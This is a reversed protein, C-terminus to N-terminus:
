SIIFFCYFYIYFFYIIYWTTWCIVFGMAPWELLCFAPLDCGLLQETLNKGQHLFFISAFFHKLICNFAFLLLYYLFWWCNHPFFVMRLYIILNFSPTLLSLFHTKTSELIHLTLQEKNKIRLFFSVRNNQCEAWDECRLVIKVVIWPAYIALAGEL